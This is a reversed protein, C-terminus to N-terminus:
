MRALARARAKAIEDARAEARASQEWADNLLDIAEKHIYSLRSRSCGLAEAAEGQTKGHLYIHRCAAEHQAPLKKLWNEVTEIAELEEGVPPDAEGLVVRGHEECEATLSRIMPANEMDGRWGAVILARQVDRLAGCIRFRAFTSFKVNRSPDYTQAAEVLAMCAASDFEDVENPWSIKLMKAMSRAMPLYRVALNQREVSMPPRKVRKKTGGKVETEDGQASVEIAYTKRARRGM